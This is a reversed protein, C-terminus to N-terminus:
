RTKHAFLNAKQPIDAAEITKQLLWGLYIILGLFLLVPAIHGQGLSLTIIKHHVLYVPFSIYGLFSRFNLVVMYRSCLWLMTWILLYNFLAHIALADQSKRSWLITAITIVSLAGLASRNRLFSSAEEKFQSAFVGIGFLPVSILHHTAEGKMLLYSFVILQGLLIAIHGPKKSQISVAFGLYCVFLVKIFWLYHDLETISFVAIWDIAPWIGTNFYTWCYISCLTLCNTIFVAKYIKLFRKIAFEKLSMHHKRESEMLGYGSLFFFIAVGAYGGQTSFLFYFLNDAIGLSLVHQSYHHLAIMLCSLGKLFQTFQFNLYVAPSEQRQISISKSLPTIRAKMFCFYIPPVTRSVKGYELCRWTAKYSSFCLCDVGMRAHVRTVQERM